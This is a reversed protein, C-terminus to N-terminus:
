NIILFLVRDLYELKYLFITILSNYLLNYFLRKGLKTIAKAILIKKVELLGYLLVVLSYGKRTIFNNFRFRNILNTYAKTLAIIVKKKKKLITLYNFP